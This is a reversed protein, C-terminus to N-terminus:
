AVHCLAALNRSLSLHYESRQITYRPSVITTHPPIYTGAIIVGSSGSKRPAGTLIVPYLRLVEQIVAKPHSLRGLAKYNETDVDRIGHDVLEQYILEQHQPARM